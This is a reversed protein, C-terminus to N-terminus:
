PTASSQRGPTEHPPRYSARLQGSEARARAMRLRGLLDPAPLALVAAAITPAAHPALEARRQAPRDVFLADAPQHALVVQLAPLPAAEPDDGGIRLVTM